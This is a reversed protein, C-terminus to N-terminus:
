CQQPDAGMMNVPNLFNLDLVQFKFGPKVFSKFFFFTDLPCLGALGCFVCFELHENQM